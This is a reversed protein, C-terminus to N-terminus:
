LEISVKTASTKLPLCCAARFSSLVLERLKGGKRGKHKTDSAAVTSQSILLSFLISPFFSLNLCTSCQACQHNSASILVSTPTSQRGILAQGNALTSLTLYWSQKSSINSLVLFFFFFLCSSISNRFYIATAATFKAVLAALSFFEFQTLNPCDQLQQQQQRWFQTQM